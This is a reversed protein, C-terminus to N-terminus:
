EGVGRTKLDEIAPPRGWGRGISESSLGREVALAAAAEILRAEEEEIEDSAMNKRLKEARRWKQDRAGRRKKCENAARWSMGWLWM